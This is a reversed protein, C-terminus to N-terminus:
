SPFGPSWQPDSRLRDRGRLPTNKEDSQGVWYGLSLFWGECKSTIIDRFNLKRKRNTSLLFQIKFRGVDEAAHELTRIKVALLSLLLLSKQM